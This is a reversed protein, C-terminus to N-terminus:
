HTSIGQVVFNQCPLALNLIKVFVTKKKKFRHCLQLQHKVAITYDPSVRSTTAQSCQKLQKHEAEFRLCNLVKLPGYLLMLRQYHLLNHHKPRLTKKFLSVYAKLYSTVLDGFSEINEQTVSHAFVTCVIQRLLLFMKWSKDSSPILDGIMLPLNMVLFYMESASMMLKGEKISEKSLSPLNADPSNRDFYEMRDKLDQFCFHKKVNILYNLIRAVDVRCVGELLDHMPDVSPNNILHFNHLENFVCSEKVGFSHSSCHRFYDSVNRLLSNNEKTQSQLQNKPIICIRCCYDSNFGASIGLVSNLGLNDGAVFPLVFYVTRIQNEINVTIGTTELAKFQRIIERFIIKNGLQRHNQLENNDGVRRRLFDFCRGIYLSCMASIIAHVAARNMNNFAYLHTVFLLACNLVFDTLQETQMDPDVGNNLVNLDDFALNNPINNLIPPPEEIVNPDNNDVVIQPPEVPPSAPAVEPNQVSPSVHFKKIHRALSHVNHYPTRCDGVNCVVRSKMESKHQLRVHVMLSELRGFTEDCYFCRYETM